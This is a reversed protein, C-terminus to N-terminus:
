QNAKKSAFHVRWGQWEITGGNLACVGSPVQIRTSKVACSEGVLGAVEM